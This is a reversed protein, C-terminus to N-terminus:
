DKIGIRITTINNIDQTINRVYSIKELQNIFKEIKPKTTNEIIIKIRETKNGVEEDFKHPVKSTSYFFVFVILIIILTVLGVNHFRILKSFENSTNLKFPLFLLSAIITILTTLMFKFPIYIFSYILCLLLLFTLIITKKSKLDFRRRDFLFYSGVYLLSILPLLYFPFQAILLTQSFWGMAFKSCQMLSMIIGTLVINRHKFRTYYSSHLFNAFLSIVLLFKFINNLPISFLFGVVILFFLISVSSEITIKKSAVPNKEKKFEIFDKLDDSADNIDNFVYSSSYTINLSFIGLLAYLINIQGYIMTHFILGLLFISTNRPFSYYIYKFKYIDKILSMISKTLKM